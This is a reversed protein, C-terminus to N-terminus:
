RVLGVLMAQVESLSQLLRGDLAGVYGLALAVDLCAETERASGLAPALSRRAAAAGFAAKLRGLV